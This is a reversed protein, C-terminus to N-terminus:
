RVGVIRKLFRVMLSEQRRRTAVEEEVADPRTIVRLLVTHDYSASPSWGLFTIPCPKEPCRWEEPWSVTEGDGRISSGAPKPAIQESGYYVAIHVLGACGPPFFVDFRIITWENVKVEVNAPSTTSTGAPVTLSTTYIPM